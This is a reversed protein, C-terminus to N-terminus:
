RSRCYPLLAMERANKVADCILRQVRGNAGTSRRAVIKNKENVFRRLFNTDKYDIWELKNLYTNAPKKRVAKVKKRKERRAM